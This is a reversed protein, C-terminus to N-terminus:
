EAVRSRLLAWRAMTEADDPDASVKGNMWFEFWALSRRYVALRHVPHFKVHGEDPYVYMETPAEAHDLAAYTEVALRFEQDTLQMLLPTRMRKANAALSYPEWFRPNDEGQPPYGWKAISELYAPGVAPGAGASECCSSIAAARYRKSNLLAFQVTAAGDSLGTLGIRAPDVVGLDVVRDVGAELGALIRRRERWDKVNIRQFEDLDAAGSGSAVARPRQVSLVAFGNQAFLYIPYDDGSGGRLFGQSTYNVIILPHNQGPRHNPPLVLDGYSAIGDSATWRLRQASGLAVSAFEPNPDYLTVFAGTNPNITVVSRPHQMRERACILMRGALKCSELIDETDVIRQPGVERGIRWRFIETRGGNEPNGSRLFLIEGPERAWLGTIRSGCVDGCALRRGRHEVKLVSVADFLGPPESATWARGTGPLFAFLSAGSPRNPDAAPPVDLSAQGTTADVAITKFPVPRPRPRAESLTWFRRDYLYGSRGERQIATEAERTPRIMIRLIRPTTWEVSRAEDALRTVQRAPGNIAAVWVQTSGNDRRLYAISRSDPSWVPAVSTITGGVFDPVGRIDVRTLIPDGGTDVFRSLAGARLPVLVVGICYSDTDVSARRLILAAWRGDPSVSIERFDRLEILTKAELQAGAPPMPGPRLRSECGEALAPGASALLGALTTLAIM